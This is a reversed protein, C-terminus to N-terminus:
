IHIAWGEGVRMSEMVAESLTPHAHIMTAVDELLLEASKALLLEHILETAEAGVVHAGLIEKTQPHFLIKVLGDSKDIAVSKGAGRYPFVAKAYTIKEEKAKWEPYGFSAIQPECYTCGPIQNPDIKKHKPKKGAIFEVAIEAEKSAVHALLPSNVVDGVAYISPVSTQYYDKVPIFGRETKIGVSDLGINETNPVRGIAVLVKDTKEITKQTNGGGVLNTELTIELGDKVKKMETAKTGTSFKVGRKEFSKRLVEVAEQDEVPLIRDLMEVVHVEVGFANWVHAFEMGIAGSGLILIKKPLKQLNLAGTSSLVADEDFSFGPLSRPRSGTAILINKGRLKKGDMSTVENAGTIKFEGTLYTVNNKKLLYQVGKSLTDAAKRSKQYVKAFDFGNLDVRVGMEKLEAGSRFIEAQHILAKSPICGVNLCVGGPKDKELVAVKKFGLQTARIAAVYGAPGAGIIILDFEDM